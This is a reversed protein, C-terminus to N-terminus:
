QQGILQGVAKGGEVHDCVAKVTALIPVALFMGPVGWIWSWFVISLFIAVANLSATRTLLYPTLVMGELSTIVFAVGGTLAAGWLTGFQLFGVTMLLVSVVLPGYYPVVNMIGALLGWVAPQEVGIWSLVLATCAAVAGSTLLQVWIFTRVQRAIDTAIRATVRTRGQRSSLREAVLRGLRKSEGLMFITLLLTTVAQGVLGVASVSSTWLWDSARWPQEVEVRVVGPRRAPPQAVEAAATDIAKAAEQVKGLATDSTRADSRKFTARLRAAGDPIRSLVAEVQPWLSVVAMGTGGALALVVVSAGLLRPIRLRQMADVIPDLAFVLFIAFVVPLLLSATFQLTYVAVCTV